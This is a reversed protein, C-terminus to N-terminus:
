RTGQVRTVLQRTASHRRSSPAKQVPLPKATFVPKSQSQPTRGLGESPWLQTLGKSWRAGPPTGSRCPCARPTGTHGPCLQPQAAAQASAEEALAAGEPVARGTRPAPSQTQWQPRAWHAGARPTWASPTLPGSVPRTGQTPSGQPLLLGTRAGVSGRSAGPSPAPARVRCPSDWPRGQGWLSHTPGQLTPPLGPRLSLSPWSTGLPKAAMPGPGWSSHQHAPGDGPDWCGPGRYRSRQPHGSQQGGARSESGHAERTQQGQWPVPTGTGRM